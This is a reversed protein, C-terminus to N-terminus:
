LERAGYLFDPVLLSPRQRVLAHNQIKWSELRFSQPIRAKKLQAAIVEAREKAFMM